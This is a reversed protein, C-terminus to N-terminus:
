YIIKISLNLKFIDYISPMDDAEEPSDCEGGDNKKRNVGNALILDLKVIIFLCFNPLCFAFDICKNFLFINSDDVLRNVVVSSVLQVVPSFTHLHEM